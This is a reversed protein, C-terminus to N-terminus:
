QEYVAVNVTLLRSMHSPIRVNLGTGLWQKARASSKEADEITMTTLTGVAAIPQFRFHEKLKL